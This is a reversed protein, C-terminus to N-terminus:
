KKKELLLRCVLHVPSQLESTHEESRPGAPRAAMTKSDAPQRASAASAGSSIRAIAAPSAGITGAGTVAAASFDGHTSCGTNAPKEIRDGEQSHIAMGTRNRITVSRAQAAAPLRIIRTRRTGGHREAVAPTVPALRYVANPKALGVRRTSAATSCVCVSTLWMAGASVSAPGPAGGSGASGCMSYAESTM